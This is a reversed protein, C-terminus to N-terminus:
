TQACDTKHSTGNSTIVNAFFSVVFSIFLTLFNSVNKQKKHRTTWPWPNAASTQLRQIKKNVLNLKVWWCKNKTKCLKTELSINKRFKETLTCSSLNHAWLFLGLNHLTSNTCVIWYQLDSKQKKTDGCKCITTCIPQQFQGSLNNANRKIMLSQANNMKLAEYLFFLHELNVEMVMNTLVITPTVEQWSVGFLHSLLFRSSDVNISQNQKKHKKLKMKNQNIESVSGFNVLSVDTGNPLVNIKIKKM